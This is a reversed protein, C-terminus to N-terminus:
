ILEIKGGCSKVSEVFGPYTVNMAEATDIVTEGSCNLGAIALSMVIRHDDYGKVAAGHLKSERIVLGDPLESIDAGMKTLESCMVSIRDTEKLRAQPVNVLRTEGKAFCAAVAMAPLADPISNMDIERGKLSKGKIKINNHDYKIEAGMDALIDLVAKDGQPDSMDLNTLVLERESIAAQVMFFTASSFDGPITCEFPRYQQGGPIFFEKMSNHSYKIGLKDLWWLTIEVYPIENLRTIEVHTDKELLPTNLLISSLYQSTVCDLKTYGGTARGKIVVPASENGRTTFAKGGLNNIAEVLPGIQRKRIQYDGTFVTYGDVLAATMLGLRLSTGSNGVDIVNEPVQPCAGMGNVVYSENNLDYTSGFARCVNVGSVADTSLLPNRIVSTGKALGALFLSRITHSKSGPISISGSIDSKQVKLFM